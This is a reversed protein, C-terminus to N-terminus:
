NGQAESTEGLQLVELLWGAMRESFADMQAACTRTLPGMNQVIQASQANLDGDAISAGTAGEYQAVFYLTADM